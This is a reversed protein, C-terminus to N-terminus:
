DQAIKKRMMVDIQVDDGLRFSHRGFPEFGQHAYFAIAKQNHEWVGLWVWDVGAEQAAELATAMLRKGVGTGQAGPAVAINDLLLADTEPILVLIGTLDPTGIVHVRGEAILAAYDDLM